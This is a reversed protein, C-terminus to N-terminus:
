NVPRHPAWRTGMMCNLTLTTATVGHGQGLFRRSAPWGCFSFCELRKERVNPTTPKALVFAAISENLNSSPLLYPLMPYTLKTLLLTLSTVKVAKSQSFRRFSVLRLLKLKFACNFTIGAKYYMYSLLGNWRGNELAAGGKGPTAKEPYSRSARM